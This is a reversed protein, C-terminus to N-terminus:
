NKSIPKKEQWFTTFPTIKRIIFRTGAVDSIVATLIINGVAAKFLGGIIPIRATTSFTKIIDQIEKESLATRTLFVKNLTKTLLNKNPGPCEIETVKPDKILFNIKGLNFNEPVKEEVLEQESISPKYGEPTQSPLKKINEIPQSFKKIPIKENIRLSPKYSKLHIHSPRIIEPERMNTEPIIREEAVAVNRIIEKTFERLFLNRYNNKVM